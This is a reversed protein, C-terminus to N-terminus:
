SKITMVSLMSFRSQKAYVISKGDAFWSLRSIYLGSDNNKTLQRPQGGMEAVSWIDDKGDNRAAFAIQKRDNSLFINYFYANRLRAVEIAAGTEVSVRKLVTEPPLGSQRESEAIILSKEDAAFGLLRFIKDSGYIRKPSRDAIDVINLARMPLQDQGAAKKQSFFAISKGNSSWVPCYLAYKGDNLDTLKEDGGTAANVTWINPTGSRESIYAIQSSDPSWAFANTQIHNYPSVSYGIVPIGGTALRKEGGGNPNAVFLEITEASKRLFAVFSGDPSWTPLFGRTVLQNSREDQSKLSRVLIESEFLNSGRSLNKASQFVVREGDPSVAPWLESNVSKSVSSEQDDPLNVRWISSDEKASSVIFADGDPSADVVTNDTESTTMRTPKADVGDFVFVQFVGTVLASFYFRRKTDLWVVSGIEDNSETMLKPSKNAIDATYIKWKSDTQIVYAISKEDSSVNVWEIKGAQPDFNTVKESVGASDDMGYLDGQSQYYIKGSATWRRLEFSGDAVAGVPRPTGGGLASARWVGTTPRGDVGTSKQSFFAIEDGKPSWIPDRNSSADNTVQIPEKSNAQTVWINKSGSRTSSFAILKGDPSYRANSFLEGPASSWNAIESSTIDAASLRKGGLGFGFYWLAGIIVASGAIFMFAHLLTFRRTASISETLTQRAESVNTAKAALTLDETKNLKAEFRLEDRLDELDIELDKIHQYRNEKDKRLTKDVIRELQRPLEPSIQRLGPPDDKLISSLLDVNSEGSFPEKGAFLEYLVIGFSFIDSRADLEHGRAQEPSMYAVTGMILGPKTNFQARTADEPASAQQKRETLKALGFDLVKVLGDDRIMINEPKIDRHIIHAEHAAGLAAAVQLAIGLAQNLDLTGSLMKDRLTMGKIYETAIYQSTEFSGIEFVTLINPHNLASAAKAERVFRGVRDTDGALEDLLVKIAVERDLRTDEALYVEGMGGVGIASVIKYHSIIDGPSPM